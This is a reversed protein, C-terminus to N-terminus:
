RTVWPNVREEQKLRAAVSDADKRSKYGGVRVRFVNPSNALVFASYGKSTLRKVITDAEGRTKTAAVQVMWGQTGGDPAPTSKDAAPKDVKDAKEPPPATARTAVLAPAKDVPKEAAKDAPKDGPRPPRRKRGDIRVACPEAAFAGYRLRKGDGGIWSQKNLIIIM